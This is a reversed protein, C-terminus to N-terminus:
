YPNELDEPLFTKNRISMVTETSKKWNKLQLTDKGFLKRTFGMPIVMLIFVISLIIRSMVSGLLMSFGLWFVAIHYYSKPFVMNLVLVPIAIKYYIANGTFYGILLLILTMAMGTDICQAKSVDRPFLYLLKNM